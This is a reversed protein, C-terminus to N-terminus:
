EKHNIRNSAELTESLNHISEAISMLGGTVGMVAETLSSVHGGYADRGAACTPTINEALLRIAEAVKSMQCLEDTVKMYGDNQTQKKTNKQMTKNFNLLLDAEM